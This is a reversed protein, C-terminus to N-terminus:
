KLVVGNDLRMPYFCGLVEDAYKRTSQYWTGTPKNLNWPKLINTAYKAQFRKIANTLNLDLASNTIDLNEDQTNNLFAKIKLIEEPTPTTKFNTTAKFYPCTLQKTQECYVRNIAKQTSIYVWGTPTNLGWFRLVDQKYKLQFANVVKVDQAKYIGDVALNANEYDNLFTQLKKVEEPNNKKSGLQIYSNLYPECTNPTYNINDPTAPLVIPKTTTTNGTSGNNTNDVVIPTTTVTTNLTTTTVAIVSPIIVVPTSPTPISPYPNTNEPYNVMPASGCSFGATINSTNSNLSNGTANYARVTYTYSSNLALARDDYFTNETRIIEVSNRYVRYGTAGTVANWSLKAIGDSCDTGSTLTLTPAQPVTLITNTIASTSTGATNLAYVAFTYNTNNILGTITASLSTTAVTTTAIGKDNTIYYNTLVSGGNFVPTTWTLNAQTNDGATATAPTPADPITYPTASVITSSASEGLINVATVYFNYTTGNTLGYFITSTATTTSLLINTDSNYINYVSM